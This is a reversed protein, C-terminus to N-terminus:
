SEPPGLHQGKPLNYSRQTKKEGKGCDVRRSRGERGRDTPLRDAGFPTRHQSQQDIRRVRSGHVGAGGAGTKELADIGAVCPGRGTGSQRVALDREQREIGGSRLRDVGAGPRAADELAQVAPRGPPRRVLPEAGTRFQRDGRQGEIRARGRGEVEAAQRGTGPRRKELAGVAARGPHREAPAELRLGPRHDDERDIRPLAADDIGAGGQVPDVAARVAALGPYPPAALQGHGGDDGQRDVGRLRIGDVGAGLVGAQEAARVAALGPLRDAAPEFARAHRDQEEMRAIRAHEIGRRAVDVAIAGVQAAADVAAGVVARAPARRGAADGAVGDPRQRDIRNGRRREIGTDPMGSHRLGDVAGRGPGRRAAAQAAQRGALDGEIGRPGAGEVHGRHGADELGLVVAVGPGQDAGVTLAVQARGLQLDVRARRLRDVGRALELKQLLRSPPSLQPQIPSLRSSAKM